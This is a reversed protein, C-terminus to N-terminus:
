ATKIGGEALPLPSEREHYSRRRETGSRKSSSGQGIGGQRIPATGTAGIRDYSGYGVFLAAFHQRLFAPLSRQLSATGRLRAVAM